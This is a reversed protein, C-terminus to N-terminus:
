DISNDHSSFQAALFDIPENVKMLQTWWKMSAEPVPQSDRKYIRCGFCSFNGHTPFIAIDQAAFAVCTRGEEGEAIVQRACLRIRLSLRLLLSGAELAPWKM